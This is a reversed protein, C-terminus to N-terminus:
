EFTFVVIEPETGVRLPPGWTGCGTSTYVQLKGFNHLGHTFRGFIRRALINFPFFQGGHTHGSLQLGIGSEEAIPLRVPAHNLLISAASPGPSLSELTARVRLPYTSEHYTIGLVHLGDITVRQNALVHIGTRAIAAIYQATDHFEEHNGTSFYVGFPPKLEKFPAILSDFGAHTGDFVDGPLFVIHPDLSAALKVMRRAFATRNISGLHLDSMLVARRGQWSDPLNPLRVAIRRVRIIRANILGYLFVALAAAFFSPGLLCHAAAAHAPALARLAYWAAWIVCAALFLFHAFGLWLAALKYFLDIVPHTFRFSLLSAAVFVFALAFFAIRLGSQPASGTGPWFAVVTHFLFWHALFLIVQILSIGLVPWAKL